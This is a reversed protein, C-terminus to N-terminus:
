VWGRNATVARISPPASKAERNSRAQAREAFTMSALASGRWDSRDSASNTPDWGSMMTVFPVPTRDRFFVRNVEHNGGLELPLFVAIIATGVGSALLSAITAGWDHQSSTEAHSVAGEVVGVLFGWGAWREFRAPSVTVGRPGASIELRRRGADGNRRRRAGEHSVRALEKHGARSAITAFSLLAVICWWRKLSAGPQANTVPPPAASEAM